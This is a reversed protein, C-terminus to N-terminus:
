GHRVRQLGISWTRGPEETWPIRWTLISSHTAMAGGPSRLVTRVDGANAPPNNVALVVQSAGFLPWYEKFLLNKKKIAQQSPFCVYM